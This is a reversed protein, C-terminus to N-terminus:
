ISVKWMQKNVWIIDSGSNSILNLTLSKSLFAFDSVNFPKKISEADMYQLPM